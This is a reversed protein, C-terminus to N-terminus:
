PKWEARQDPTASSMRLAEDFPVPQERERVIGDPASLRSGSVLPPAMGLSAQIVSETEKLTQAFRSILRAPITAAEVGGREIRALLDVPLNVLAALRAPSLRRASRIASLSRTPTVGPMIQALRADIRAAVRDAIAREAPTPIVLETSRGSALVFELYEALDDRLDQPVTAVFQQISQPAASDLLALYRTAAEALQQERDAM